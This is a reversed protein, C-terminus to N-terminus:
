RSTARWITGSRASQAASRAPSRSRLSHKSNKSLGHPIRLARAANSARARGPAAAGVGRAGLVRRLYLTRARAGCRRADAARARCPVSRRVIQLVRSRLPSRRSASRRRGADLLRALNKRVVKAIKRTALDKSARYVPELEGRYSKGTAFYRMSDSMSSPAPSRASWAAACSFACATKSDGTCTGTAASGNRPSIAGEDDRLRAEVIELGRVRREKVATM